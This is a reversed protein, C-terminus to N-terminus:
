KVKEAEICDRRDSKNDQVGSNSVSVLHGLTQGTNQKCKNTKCLKRPTTPLEGRQPSCHYLIFYLNLNFYMYIYNYYICM